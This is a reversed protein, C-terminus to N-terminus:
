MEQSDLCREKKERSAMDIASNADMKKKHARCSSVECSLSQFGVALLRRRATADRALHHVGQMEPLEWM